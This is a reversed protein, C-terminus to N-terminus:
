RPHLLCQQGLRPEESIGGQTVFNLREYSAFGIKAESGSCPLLVRSQYETTWFLFQQGYMSINTKWTIGHNHTNPLSLNNLLEDKYENRVGHFRFLAKWGIKELGSYIGEIGRFGRKTGGRILQATVSDPSYWGMFDLLDGSIESTIGRVCIEVGRKAM